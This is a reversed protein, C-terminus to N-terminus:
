SVEKNFSIQNEACTNVDIEHLGASKLHLEKSKIYSNIPYSSDSHYLFDFNSESNCSKSKSNITSSSFLSPLLHARSYELHKTASIRLSKKNEVTNNLKRLFSRNNIALSFKVKQGHRVEEVCNDDNVLSHKRTQWQEATKRRSDRLQTSGRVFICSGTSTADRRENNQNVSFQDTLDCEESITQYSQRLCQEHQENLSRNDITELQTRQTQRSCRISSYTRRGLRNRFPTPKYTENCIM